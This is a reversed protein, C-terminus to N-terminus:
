IFNENFKDWDISNFVIENLILRENEFLDPIENLIINLCKKDKTQEYRMALVLWREVQKYCAKYKEICELVKEDMCINWQDYVYQMTKILIKRHEVLKKVARTVKHATPKENIGELVQQVLLHLMNLCGIGTYYKYTFNSQSFLTVTSITIDYGLIETKLKKYAEFACNNNSYTEKLRFLTAPYQFDLALQMGKINNSRFFNKVEPLTESFHSFSVECKGFKRNELQVALFCEKARDYGYIVVEHFREEKESKIFINVYYGEQLYNIIKDVVNEPKLKFVNIQKRELIDDHYNPETLRIDGYSFEYDFEKCYLNYHSIIWDNYFPSTKIIILRNYIWCDTVCDVNETDIALEFKETNNM